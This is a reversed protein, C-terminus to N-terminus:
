RTAYYLGWQDVALSGEQRAFWIQRGDSSLWPDSDAADTSLEDIRVIDTFQSTLSERRAAYLDIDNGDHQDAAFVLLLGNEALHGNVVSALAHVEDFPQVVAPVWPGTGGLRVYETMRQDSGNARRHVIIRNADVTPTGPRDEIDTSLNGAEEATANTWTTATPTSRRYAYVDIATPGQTYFAYWLVLGSSSLKPNGENRAPDNFVLPVPDDWTTPGGTAIYLDGTGSSTTDWHAFVLQSADGSLAPDTVYSTAALPMGEIEVRVPTGWGAFWGGDSTPGGDGPQPADLGSTDDASIPFVLHCGGVAVLVLGVLAGRM